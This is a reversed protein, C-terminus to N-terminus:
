DKQWNLLRKIANMSVQAAEEPNRKLVNRYYAFSEFEVSCFGQYGIAKLASFFDSWDVLGEGLIPFLFNDRVGVCDKLHVHKIKKGWQKVIWGVDLNGYLIGHSPDLNVGLYESDYHEILPRTSYYDHCLMGWVGEVAVEVRHKEAYPVIEDFASFVFDWAEGEKINKGIVPAKANWPAPGTFLNVPGVGLESCIEISEKVLKLRDKRVTEDLNVFDQQVIIESIEMGSRHTIEVLEQLQKKTKTRPNFHSLTWGVASYGLNSLVSIVKEPEWKAFDLAALFGIRKEFLNNDTQDMKGKESSAVFGTGGLVNRPLITFVAAAASTKIFQRRTEQTCTKKM